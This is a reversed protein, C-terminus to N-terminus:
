REERSYPLTELWANLEAALILRKRGSYRATLKEDKIAQELTPVSLGVAAAADKIPYALPAQTPSAM